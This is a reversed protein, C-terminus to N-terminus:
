GEGGLDAVIFGYHWECLCREDVWFVVTFDELEELGTVKSCGFCEDEMIGTNGPGGDQSSCHLFDSVAIGAFIRYALKGSSM